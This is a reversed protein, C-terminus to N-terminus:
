AMWEQEDVNEPPVTLQLACSRPFRETTQGATVNIYFSLEQGEKVGLAAFPIKMELIEDWAAEAANTGAKKWPGGFAVRGPATPDLTLTLGETGFMADALDLFRVAVTPPAPLRKTGKGGKGAQDVTAESRLDVRLCLNKQDYGFYIQEVAAKQSAAMVGGEKDARYRGAGLWEFYSSRRGDVKIRLSATPTTYRGAYAGGKVPVNLFFPVAQGLFKYMNKLHTRFLTDFAEDDGSSRDDGYWWYWDSGEAIYLEEWARALGLDGAQRGRAAAVLDERARYVYEWGRRDEPHGVWIYFDHNIWSGPFLKPLRQTPPHAALFDSVCVSGVGHERKELKAYLTRLFKVGQEPYHEWCNEGDLIVPVVTETGAAPARAAAQVHRLFDDAAAEGEWSQYQFGILDSLHHDRFLITLEAGGAQCRWGRYLLDPREVKQGSRLREGLSASLIEEDTAIWRIGARAILPVIDPSVSGEAPWMGQPAAGFVQRHFAVAKKVQAEADEVLPVHGTPLPHRPMAAHCSRMDCLLPLIPHYFPTTTLEVQQRAALEKHLPIVRALIQKQERLVLTKENETFGHDKRRLERLAESEEFSVPHFWALNSWVQLDRLDQVRFEEAARVAPARGMRRMELLQRYRPYVRIMRDWQAMFFHDLIFCVDEGSLSDAPILTRRLFPDSAGNEVYDQLQALMSPVLNITCHADPFEKLLRAMGYYDKVGHLRVWPLVMEGSSLDKYYPQHQHWLIALSIPMLESRAIPERSSAALEAGAGGIISM